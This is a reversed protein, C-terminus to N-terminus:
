TQLSSTMLFKFSPVKKQMHGIFKKNNGGKVLNALEFEIVSHSRISRKKKVNETEEQDRSSILNEIYMRNNKSNIEHYRESEIRTLEDHGSSTSRILRSIKAPERGINIEM